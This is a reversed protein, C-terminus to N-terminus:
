LSKTGEIQDKLAKVELELADVKKWSKYTPGAPNITIMELTKLRRETKKMTKVMYQLVRILTSKDINKESLLIECNTISPIINGYEDVELPTPARPVSPIICGHRDTQLSM